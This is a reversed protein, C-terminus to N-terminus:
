DVTRSRPRRGPAEPFCLVGHCGGLTDDRGQLDDAPRERATQERELTVDGDDAPVGLAIHDELRFRDRATVGRDHARVATEQEAVHPTSATGEDVPLLDVIRDHQMVPIRDLDAFTLQCEAALEHLDLFAVLLLRRDERRDVDHILATRLIERDDPRLHLEPCEPQDALLQPPRQLKGLQEVPDEVREELQKGPGLATEDQESFGAALRQYGLRNAGAGPRRALQLDALGHELPREVLPLRDKRLVQGPLKGLAGADGLALDPRQHADGQQVLLALRDADHLDVGPVAPAAEVLIVEVQEDGDGALDADGDLVGPQVLRQHSLALHLLFELEGSLHHRREQGLPRGRHGSVFEPRIVLRGTM